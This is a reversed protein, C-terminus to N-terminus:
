PRAVPPKPTVEIGVPIKALYDAIRKIDAAIGQLTKEINELVEANEDM